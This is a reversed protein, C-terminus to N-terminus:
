GKAERPSEKRFWGQYAVKYTQGSRLKPQIVLTDEAYNAAQELRWVFDTYYPVFPFEVEDETEYHYLKKVKRIDLKQRKGWIEETFYQSTFATKKQSLVLLSPFRPILVLGGM